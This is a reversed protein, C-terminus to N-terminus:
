KKDGKGEARAENKKLCMMLAVEMDVGEIACIILVCAIIDALEGTFDGELELSCPGDFHNQWDSYSEMAEVVETATHKLMSVTDTKIAAGNQERKQAADCMVKALENLDIM